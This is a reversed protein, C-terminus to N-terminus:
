ERTTPREAAAVLGDDNGDDGSVEYFIAGLIFAGGVGIAATPQEDLLLAAFVASFIPQSSYILNARAPRISQQGFSQAWITYACTVGGCWAVARLLTAWDSAPLTEVAAFFTRIEVAPTAALLVAISSIGFLTEYKAKSVALELPRIAKSLAGLRLVHASYCVAAAVILLDGQLNSTSPSAAATADSGLLVLCGSFALACSALTRAPIARKFVVGELLPVFITTLQVLFAATDAGTSELGTVQLINGLFLYGGLEAGAADAGGSGAAGVDVAAGDGRDGRDGLWLAASLTALAVVYYAASFVVGPPAVPQSYVYRVAPAYTGWAVPVTCLAALRLANPVGAAEPQKGAAHRVGQIRRPAARPAPAPRLAAAGVLVLFLRM